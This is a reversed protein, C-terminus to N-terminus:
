YYTQGAEKEEELGPEDGGNESRLKTFAIILGLIVLLIALVAFGIELGKRLDGSSKAVSAQLNVEKVVQGNSKVKVTLSQEGVVSPTVKVLLEGTDGANVAVFGPDVSASGWSGVGLVEASYRVAENGFNAIMVKYSATEGVKVDKRTADISILSETSAAEKGDVVLTFEESVVEHGRSFILEVKAEYNGSEADKPIRGFLEVDGSTEEDNDNDEPVLEDIYDRAIFGLEPISLKVQIDEEKNDGMNEVRITTFLMDGANVVTGPRFIVDVLRLDHRKEDVRLSYSKRAENNGDFAEVHLTYSKSSGRTDADIDNPLSVSLTKKYLGSPEVKFIKTQEAVDGYEYGGIWAKVKVDDRVTGVGSQMGKVWIEVDLSDGREFTIFNIDNESVTRSEVEVSDIVYDHSTAASVNGLSFLGLLLVTIIRLASKFKM